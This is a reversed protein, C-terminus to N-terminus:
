QVGLSTKEFAFLSQYGVIGAAVAVNLSNKEGHMPIEVAQDALEVLALDVGTVENGVVLCVPFSFPADFYPISQTTHEMVVRHVGRVKLDSLITSANEHYEWPVVTEAGLATKTIARHPPKGTIGCLYIKEAHIGDAIRFIAGVNYLSRVDNLLFSIPHRDKSKNEKRLTLIEEHSLKRM